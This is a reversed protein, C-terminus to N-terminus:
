RSPPLFEKWIFSHWPVVHCSIHLSDYMKKVSHVGDMVRTWVCIDKNAQIPSIATISAKVGDNYIHSLYLTNNLLFNDIPDVLNAQDKLFFGLQTAM